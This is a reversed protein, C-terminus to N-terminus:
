FNFKEEVWKKLQEINEFPPTEMLESLEYKVLHQELAETLEQMKPRKKREAFYKKVIRNFVARVESEFAWLSVGSSFKPDDEILIGVIKGTEKYTITKYRYKIKPIPPLPILKPEEM